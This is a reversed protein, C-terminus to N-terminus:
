KNLLKERAECGEATTLDNGHEDMLWHWCGKSHVKIGNEIHIEADDPYRSLKKKWDGIMGMNM